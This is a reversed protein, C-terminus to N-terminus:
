KQILLNPALSVHKTHQLNKMYGTNEDHVFFILYGDDEEGSVGPQKPVFIAESGFRGPGLDYIGQINGGAELEKKGSEPEAHLDFKIIGTV